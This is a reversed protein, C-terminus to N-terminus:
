LKNRHYPDPGAQECIDGLRLGIHVLSYKDLVRIISVYIEIDRGGRCVAFVSWSQYSVNKM